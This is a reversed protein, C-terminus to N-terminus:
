YINGFGCNGVSKTVNVSSIRFPFSLKKHLAVAPSNTTSTTAITFSSIILDQQYCNIALRPALPPRGLSLPRLNEMHESLM